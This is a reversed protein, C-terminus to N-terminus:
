DHNTLGPEITCDVFHWTWGPVGDDFMDLGYVGCARVWRRPNTSRARFEACLPLRNRHHEAWAADIRCRDEQAIANTWSEGRTLGGMLRRWQADAYFVSGEADTLLLAVHLPQAQHGELDTRSDTM